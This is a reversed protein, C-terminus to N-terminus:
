KDITKKRRRKKHKIEEKFDNAEYWYFDVLGYDFEVWRDGESFCQKAEELTPYIAKVYTDHGFGDIWSLVAIM